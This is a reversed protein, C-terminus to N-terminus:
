PNEQRTAAPHIKITKYHAVEVRPDLYVPYGLAIARQCFTVDEGMQAGHLAEEAFWPSPAHFLTAFRELMTRHIAMFGTGVCDVSVLGSLDDLSGIPAMVPIDDNSWRFAVPSMGSSYLNDYRGGVVPAVASVEAVIRHAQEPDFEIDSDVFLLVDADTALFREVVYNRAVDLYPGSDKTIFEALVTGYSDHKPQQLLGIMSQMFETRVVGPHINGVCFLTM